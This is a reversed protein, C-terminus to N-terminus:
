STPTSCMSEISLVVSKELPLSRTIFVYDPYEQSRWYTEDGDYKYYNKPCEPHYSQLRLSAVLLGIQTEPDSEFQDVVSCQSVPGRRNDAYIHFTTIADPQPTPAYVRFKRSRQHYKLEKQQDFRENLVKVTASVSHVNKVCVARFDEFSGDAHASLTGIGTGLTLGVVTKIAKATFKM